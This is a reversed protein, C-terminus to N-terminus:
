LCKVLIIINIILLVFLTVIMVAVAMNLTRIQEKVYKIEDGLLDKTIESLFTKIYDLIM